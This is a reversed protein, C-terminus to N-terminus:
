QRSRRCTPFVTNIGITGTYNFICECFGLMWGNERNGSFLTQRLIWPCRHQSSFLKWSQKVSQDTRHKRLYRKAYRKYFSVSILLADDSYCLWHLNSKPIPLKSKRYRYSQIIDDNNTYSDNWQASWISATVDYKSYTNSNGTVWCTSKRENFYLSSRKTVRAALM